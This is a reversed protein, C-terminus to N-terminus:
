RERLIKVSFGGEFNDNQSNTIMWDTIEDAYFTILDGYRINKIEIPENGLNGTIMNDYIDTVSVWMYETIDGDTFEKKVSFHYTSDSKLEGFMDEFYDFSLQAEKQAAYLEMDEKDAQIVNDTRRYKNPSECSSLAMVCLVIIIPLSPKM